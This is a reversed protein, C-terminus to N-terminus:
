NQPPFLVEVVKWPSNEGEKALIFRNYYTSTKLNTNVKENIDYNAEMCYIRFDYYNNSPMLSADTIDIVKKIDISNIGRIDGMFGLSNIEQKGYFLSYLKDFNKENIYKAFDYLIKISDESVKTVDEYRILKVEEHSVNMASDEYVLLNLKLSNDRIELSKVQEKENKTKYVLSTKLTDVNVLYVNGGKTVTGYGLGVIVFLNSNDAWGIWLPSNQKKGENSMSFKWAKKSTNDKIYIDGIGEEVAETGKGEICAVLSNDKSVKWPTSFEPQSTFDMQQKTFIPVYDEMTKLDKSVSNEGSPTNGKSLTGGQGSDKVNLTGGQNTDIDEKHELALNKEAKHQRQYALINKSAYPMALVLFLLCAVSAMYKNNYRLWHYKLKSAVNKSYKNKDIAKMIDTRSSSFKTTDVSFAKKLMSDINKEEEYVERCKNCTNIHEEMADKMDNYLNDELYDNLRNKFTSCNM